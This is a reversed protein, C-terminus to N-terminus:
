ESQYNKIHNQVREFIKKFWVTYNEPNNEVDTKLTEFTVYKYDAVEDANIKPLNNTIGIFVRDFENESLENDLKEEYIFSFIETLRATMGMEEQLRRNATSLSTENPYPHTCCTNTWLGASHYKHFARQQLLWEGKTNFIFVSVARHLLSKRHAEMKEATGLVKDNKDVLVVM